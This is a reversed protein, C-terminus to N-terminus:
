GGTEPPLCAREFLCDITYRFYSKITLKLLASIDPITNLINGDHEISPRFSGPNNMFKRSCRLVAQWRPGDESTVDALRLGHIAPSRACRGFPPLRSPQLSISALIGTTRRAAPPGIQRANRVNRRTRRTVFVLSYEQNFSPIIYFRAILSILNVTLILARRNDTLLKGWFM